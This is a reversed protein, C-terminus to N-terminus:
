NPKPAGPLDNPESDGSSLGLYVAVGVVPIAWVALPIKRKVIVKKEHIEDNSRLRIFYTGGLDLEKPVKWQTSGTNTVTGISIVKQSSILKLDITDSPLGGKWKITISKGRRLFSGSPKTIKFAQIIEGAFQFTLSDAYNFIAPDTWELRRNAGPSVAGIDGTLTTINSQFNDYSSRVTVVVKSGQDAFLDYLIIIKGEEKLVRVNRFSQAFATSICFSLAFALLYKM